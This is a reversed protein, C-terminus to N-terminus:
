RIEFILQLCSANGLYSCSVLEYKKFWMYNLAQQLTFFEPSDEDPSRVAFGNIVLYNNPLSNDKKDYEIVEDLFKKTFWGNNEDNFYM